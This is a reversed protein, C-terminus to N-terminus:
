PCRIRGIWRLWDPPEAHWYASKHKAVLGPDKGGGGIFDILTYANGSHISANNIAGLKAAWGPPIPASFLGLPDRYTGARAAAVRLM